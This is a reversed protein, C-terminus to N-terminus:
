LDDADQVPKEYPADTVTGTYSGLPDTQPRTFAGCLTKDAKKAKSKKEKKKKMNTKETHPNGTLM